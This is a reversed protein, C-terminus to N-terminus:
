AWFSHYECHTGELWAVDVAAATAVDDAAGAGAGEEDEEAACTGADECTAAEWTRAGTAVDTFVETVALAAVVADDVLAAPVVAACPEAGEEM